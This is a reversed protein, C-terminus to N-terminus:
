QYGARTQDVSASASAAAVVQPMGYMVTAVPSSLGSAGFEANPLESKSHVNSFDNIADQQNGSATTLASQQQEEQATLGANHLQSYYTQRHTATLLSDQLAIVNQQAEQVAIQKMNQMAQLLSTEQTARLLALAEADEK